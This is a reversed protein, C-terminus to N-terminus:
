VSQKIDLQRGLVYVDDQLVRNADTLRANAARASKLDDALSEVEKELSGLQHHVGCSCNLESM